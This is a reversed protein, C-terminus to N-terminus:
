HTSPAPTSESEARYAALGKLCLLRAMASYSRQEKKAIAIVAEHDNQPLELGIRHGSLSNRPARYLSPSAQPATM